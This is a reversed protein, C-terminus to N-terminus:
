KQGFRNVFIKEYQLEERSHGPKPEDPYGIAIISEVKLGQPIRLVGRVFEEATTGEGHERERIQIWCNGLGLAEAALSIYVSAVAADEVWVDSKQPNACAVVVLPAGGLFASGHPKARSLERIAEPNDVIIFEWSNLGRSSPARLAAEIILAVKEPEVPRNQYKRVSRRKKILDFFNM